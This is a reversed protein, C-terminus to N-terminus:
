KKDLVARFRLRRSLLLRLHNLLECPGFIQDTSGQIPSTEVKEQCSIIIPFENMALLVMKLM